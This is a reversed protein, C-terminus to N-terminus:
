KWYKKNLYTAPYPFATGDSKLKVLAEIYLIAELKDVEPLKNWARETDTKRGVKKPYRKYFEDFSVDTVEAFIWPNKLDQNQIEWLMKETSVPLVPKIREINEANWEGEFDLTQLVGNLNFKFTVKRGSKQSKGVFTRM